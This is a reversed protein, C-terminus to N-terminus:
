ILYSFGFRIASSKLVEQLILLYDAKKLILNVKQLSGSETAAFCAWIM